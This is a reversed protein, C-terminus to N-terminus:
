FNVQRHYNLVGVGPAVATVVVMQLTPTVRMFSFFPGATRSAKREEARRGRERQTVQEEGEDIFPSAPHGMFSVATYSEVHSYVYFCM